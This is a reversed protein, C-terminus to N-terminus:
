ETDEQRERGFTGGKVMAYTRSPPSGKLTAPDLEVALRTRARHLRIAVANVSIGLVVAIQSHDLGEWAVLRLLEQDSPRLRRLADVVPGGTGLVVPTAIDVHQARLRDLLRARRGSARHQNALVRRAIAYLWPLTEEPRGELRQWAVVFTEAAADEADQLTRSRRVAYGLVHRQHRAYLEDFAQRSEEQRQGPGASM